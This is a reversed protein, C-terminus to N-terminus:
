VRNYGISWEVRYDIIIIMIKVKYVRIKLRYFLIIM